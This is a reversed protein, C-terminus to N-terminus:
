LYFAENNVVLDWWLKKFSQDIISNLADWTSFNSLKKQDHNQSEYLVRFFFEM